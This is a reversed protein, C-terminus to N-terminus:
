PNIETCVQISASSSSRRDSRLQDTISSHATMLCDRWKITDLSENVSYGALEVEKQNKQQQHKPGQLRLLALSQCPSQLRGRRGQWSARIKARRPNAQQGKLPKPRHSRVKRTAQRPLWQLVRRSHPFLHSSRSRPLRDLKPPNQAQSIMRAQRNLLLNLDQHKALKVKRSRRRQRLRSQLQNIRSLLLRLLRSRQLLSRSPHLLQDRLKQIKSQIRQVRPYLRRPLKPLPRRTVKRPM